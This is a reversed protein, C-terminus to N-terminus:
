DRSRPLPRRVLQYLLLSCLFGLLCGGAIDSPYHWAAAVLGAAFLALLLAACAAAAIRRSGPVLLVVAVLVGTAVAANGSPFSYAGGADLLSPQRVALKLLPALVLPLGLSLLLLVAPRFRRRYALVAGVACVVAGGAVSVGLLAEDLPTNLGADDVAGNVRLGLEFQWHSGLRLSALVALLAFGAAALLIALFLPRSGIGARLSAARRPRRLRADTRLASSQV